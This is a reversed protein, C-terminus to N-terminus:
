GSILPSETAGINKVIMSKVLSVAAALAAIAASIAAPALGSWEMDVLASASAAFAVLFTEFFTWAAAELAQKWFTSM